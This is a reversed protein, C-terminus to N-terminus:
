PLSFYLMTEEQRSLCARRFKEEIKDYGYIRAVEEIIDEKSKLDPRESAIGVSFFM